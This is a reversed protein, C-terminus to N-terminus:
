LPVPYAPSLGVSWGTARVPRQGTLRERSATSTLVARIPKPRGVGAKAVGPTERASEGVAILQSLFAAAAGLRTEYWPVCIM